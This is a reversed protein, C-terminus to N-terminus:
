EEAPKPYIELYLKEIATTATNLCTCQFTLPYCEGPTSIHANLDKGSIQLQECFNCDNCTFILDVIDDLGLEISYTPYSTNPESESLTFRNGTEFNDLIRSQSDVVVLTAHRTDREIDSSTSNNCCATVGFTFLGALLAKSFTKM